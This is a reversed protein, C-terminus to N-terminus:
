EGWVNLNIHMCGLLTLVAYSFLNLSFSMKSTLPILHRGAPIEWRNIEILFLGDLRASLKLTEHM